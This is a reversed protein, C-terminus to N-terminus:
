KFYIVGKFDMALGAGKQARAEKLVKIVCNSRPEWGGKAEIGLIDYNEQSSWHFVIDRKPEVSVNKETVQRDMLTNFIIKIEAAPEVERSGEAPQLASVRCSETRFSFKHEKELKGGYLDALSGAINVTYETNIDFYNKHKLVCYELGTEDTKWEQEVALEPKLYIAKEAAAKSVRSNFFIYPCGGTSIKKEGDKPWFTLIRLPETSFNLATDKELTGGYIDKIGKKLTLTFGTNVPLLGEALFNVQNGRVASRSYKGKLEPRIVFYEANVFEKDLPFNFQFEFLRGSPSINGAGAWPLSSLFRFGSTKFALPESKVLEKGDIGVAGELFSIKYETGPRLANEGALTDCKLLLRRTGAWSIEKKLPPTILLAKEVSEKKMPISFDFALYLCTKSPDVGSMGFTNPVMVEPTEREPKTRIIRPTELDFDPKLVINALKLNSNKGIVVRDLSFTIHGEAMVLLKYIGAPFMLFSYEGKEGTIIKFEDGSKQLIVTIGEHFFSEELLARGSVSGRARIKSSEQYYIRGGEGTRPDKLVTEKRSEAPRGANERAGGSFISFYAIIIILAASLGIYLYNKKM